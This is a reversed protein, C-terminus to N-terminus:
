RQLQRGAHTEPSGLLKNKEVYQRMYDCIEVRSVYINKFIPQMKAFTEKHEDPVHIDCEM